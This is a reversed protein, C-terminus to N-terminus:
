CCNRRQAAREELARRATVADRLEASPPAGPTGPLGAFGRLFDGLGHGLSRLAARLRHRRSM